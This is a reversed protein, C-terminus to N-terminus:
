GGYQLLGHVVDGNARGGEGSRKGHSLYLDKLEASLGEDKSAHVEPCSPHTSTWRKRAYKTDIEPKDKKRM